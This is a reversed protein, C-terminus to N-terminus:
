VLREAGDLDEDPGRNLASSETPLPVNVRGIWYGATVLVGGALGLLATKGFHM